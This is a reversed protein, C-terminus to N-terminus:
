PHGMQSLINQIMHEVRGVIATISELINAPTEHRSRLLEEIQTQVVIVERSGDGTVYPISYLYRELRHTAKLIQRLLVMIRDSARSYERFSVRPLLVPRGLWRLDDDGGVGIRVASQLVEIQGHIESLAPRIRELVTLAKRHSTGRSPRIYDPFLSAVSAFGGVIGAIGVVLTFPDPDIHKRQRCMKAITRM